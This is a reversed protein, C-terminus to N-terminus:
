DKLQLIKSIWDLPSYFNLLCLIPCQALDHPWVLSLPITRILPPGFSGQIALNYMYGWLLFNEGMIVMVHCRKLCTHFDTHIKKKKSILVIQTLHWCSTEKSILYHLWGHIFGMMKLQTPDRNNICGGWYGRVLFQCSGLNSM